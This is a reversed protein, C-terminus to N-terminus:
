EWAVKVTQNKTLGWNDTITLTFTEIVWETWWAVDYSLTSSNYM